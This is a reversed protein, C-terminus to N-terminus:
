TVTSMSKNVVRKKMAITSIDLCATDKEIIFVFHSKPAHTVYANLLTPSALIDERPYQSRWLLIVVQVAKRGKESLAYSLSM